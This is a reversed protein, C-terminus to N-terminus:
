LCCSGLASLLVVGGVEFAFALGGVGDFAGEAGVFGVGGEMVVAAVGGVGRAGGLDELHLVGGGGGPAGLPEFRAVGIRRAAELHPRCRLSPSRPQPMPM